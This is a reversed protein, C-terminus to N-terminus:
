MLAETTIKKIDAPSYVSVDTVKDWFEANLAPDAIKLSRFPELKPIQFLNFLVTNILEVQVDILANSLNGVNSLDNMYSSVRAM